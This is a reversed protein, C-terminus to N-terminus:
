STSYSDLTQHLLDMDFLTPAVYMRERRDYHEDLETRFREFMGIYPSPASASMTSYDRKKAMFTLFSLHTTSCGDWKRLALHCSTSSVIERPASSVEGFGIM